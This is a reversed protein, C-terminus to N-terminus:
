RQWLSVATFSCPFLISQMNTHLEHATSSCNAHIGRFTTRTNKEMQRLESVIMPGCKSGSEVCVDNIYVVVAEIMQLSSCWDHVSYIILHPRDLM